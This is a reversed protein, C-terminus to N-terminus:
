DNFNRSAEIKEWFPPTRDNQPSASLAKVIIIRALPLRVNVSNIKADEKGTMQKAICLKHHAGKPQSAHPFLSMIGEIINVSAASESCTGSSCLGFLVFFDEILGAIRRSVVTVRVLTM